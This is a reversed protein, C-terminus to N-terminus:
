AKSRWEAVLLVLHGGESQLGAGVRGRWRRFGPDPTALGGGDAEPIKGRRPGRRGAPYIEGWLLWFFRVPFRKGTVLQWPNKFAGGGNEVV